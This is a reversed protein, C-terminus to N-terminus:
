TGSQLIKLQQLISTCITKNFILPTKKSTSNIGPSM